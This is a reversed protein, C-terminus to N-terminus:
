QNLYPYAYCAQAPIKYANIKNLPIITVRKKLRGNQLLDKGVIENEVVVNYLKGGAAVELATSKNYDEQALHVLSAM